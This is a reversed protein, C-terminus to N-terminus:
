LNFFFTYIQIFTKKGCPMSRIRLLTLICKQFFQLWVTEMIEALPSSLPIIEPGAKPIYIISYLHYFHWDNFCVASYGPNYSESINQGLTDDYNKAWILTLIHWRFKSTRSFGGTTIVDMIQLSGPLWIRWHVSYIQVIGMLEMQSILPNIDWKGEQFCAGGFQNKNQIFLTNLCCGAM